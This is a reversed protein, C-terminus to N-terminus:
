RMVESRRMDEITLEITRGYMSVAANNVWTDIRSFEAMATELRCSRLFRAERFYFYFGSLPEDTSAEGRTSVIFLSPGNWAYLIGPRVLTQM